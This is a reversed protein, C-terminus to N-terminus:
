ATVETLTVQVTLQTSPKKGIAFATLIGNNNEIFLATTGDEIMQALVTTSPQIDVKTNATAGAVTVSQSYPSENGSWSTSLTLEKYKPKYAKSEFDAVKAQTIGSSIADMQAQTFATNSFTIVFGWTIVDQEVAAIVYKAPKGSHTEDALVYAVDNRTPVSQTGDAGYFTTAALLEAKTAFSGQAATKYLQKAEVAQIADGMESASVLKNLQSATSPIVAEIAQIDAVIDGTAQAITNDVYGQTAFIMGEDLVVEIDAASSYVLIFNLLFDTPQAPIYDSEAVTAGAYILLAEPYSPDDVGAASQVKGYLAIETMNFAPLVAGSVTNSFQTSVTFRNGAATMGSIPMTGLKNALATVSAPANSKAGSGFEAKSFVLKKGNLAQAMYQQGTNTITYGTFM